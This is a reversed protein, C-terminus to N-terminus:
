SPNVLLAAAREWLATVIPLLDPRCWIILLGESAPEFIYESVYEFSTTGPQPHNHHLPIFVELFAPFHEDWFNALRNRGTSTQQSILEIDIQQTDQLDFNLLEDLRPQRTFERTTDAQCDRNLTYRALRLEPQFQQWLLLCFQAAQEIQRSPENAQPSISFPVEFREVGAIYPNRLM